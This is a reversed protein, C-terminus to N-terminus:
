TPRRWRSMPGPATPPRHPAALHAFLQELPTPASGSGASAVTAAHLEPEHTFTAAPAPAFVPLPAPTPSPPAAGGVPISVPASPAPPHAIKEGSLLPWVRPAEADPAAFEKYGNGNGGFKGFLGAIDEPTHEKSSM